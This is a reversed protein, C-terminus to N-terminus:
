VGTTVTIEVANTFDLQSVGPVHLADFSIRKIVIGEDHLPSLLMKQSPGSPRPMWHEMAGLALSEGAAGSQNALRAAHDRKSRIIDLPTM